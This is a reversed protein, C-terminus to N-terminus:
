HKICTGVTTKTKLLKELREPHFGSIVWADMKYKSLLKPFYKDVCMMGKSKLLDKVSLMEIIKKKDKLNKYLGDVDKLLILNAGLLRSVYLSISDSTVDWSKPLDDKERLFNFTLFVPVNGRNLESKCKRMSEVTVFKKNIGSVYIGNIDMCLIAMWHALDDPIKHKNYIERIKDALEGGGPIVVIKYDKELLNEIKKCLCLLKNRNRIVSGGIKIVVCSGNM